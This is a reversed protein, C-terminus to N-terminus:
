AGGPGPRAGILGQDGFHMGGDPNLGEVGLAPYDGHHLVTPCGRTRDEGALGGPTAVAIEDLSTRVSIPRTQTIAYAIPAQRM